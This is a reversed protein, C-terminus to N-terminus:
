SKEIHLEKNFHWQVEVLERLAIAKRSRQSIAEGDAWLPPYISIGQNCALIAVEDEWGNWRYAEYFTETDGTLAWELFASYGINLNEWRLTDPAFYYMQGATGHFAGANVAFSGGVTDVAVILRGTSAGLYPSTEPGNWSLLSGTAQSVGAGLIHVWGHDLLLGGTHYAVAGMPSRTSVQLALLIQSAAEADVPLVSVSRPSAAIWEQVLVWASNTRVVLEDLSKACM